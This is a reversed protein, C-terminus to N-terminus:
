RTAEEGQQRRGDQVQRRATQVILRILFHRDQLPFSEWSPLAHNGTSSATSPTWRQHPSLSTENRKPEQDIPTSM